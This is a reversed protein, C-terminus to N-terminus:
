NGKISPSEVEARPLRNWHGAVREPFFNEGIDLRFKGQFRGKREQFLSGLTAPEAHRRM